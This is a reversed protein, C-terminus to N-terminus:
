KKSREQGKKKKLYNGKEEKRKVKKRQWEWLYRFVREFQPV